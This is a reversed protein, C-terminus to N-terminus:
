REVEQTTTRDHVSAATQASDALGHRTCEGRYDFTPNGEPTVGSGVVALDCDYWRGKDPSDNSRAFHVRGHDFIVPKGASGAAPRVAAVALVTAVIAIRRTHQM